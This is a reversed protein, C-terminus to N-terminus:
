YVKFCYMHKQEYGSIDYGPRNNQYLYLHQNTNQFDIEFSAKTCKDSQRYVNAADGISIAYTGTVRPIVALKFNYKNSNESFLYERIWDTFPNDVFVGTVLFYKFNNAAYATGPDSFSGGRFIDFSLATSLNSVGSYNILKGTNIDTFSVPSNIEIWVTDGVHISDKGPYVQAGIKFNYVTNACGLGGKKCTSFTTVMATILLVALTFYKIAM